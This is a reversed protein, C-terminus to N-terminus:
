NKTPLVPLSRKLKPKWSEGAISTRIMEAIGDDGMFDFTTSRYKSNLLVGLRILDKYDAFTAGNLRAFPFLKCNQMELPMQDLYERHQEYSTTGPTPQFQVLNVSGVIHALQTLRETVNELNEGPAGVVVMATVEGSRPQFGGHKHLLDTARQYVSLDHDPSQSVSADDRLFVQRYGAERMKVVLAKTLLSPSLNGLALLKIDLKQRRILDLVREFHAGSQGPSIDDFFAFEKAGIEAKHRIESIIREADRSRNLFLGAFRPTSEYLSLDTAYNQARKGAPSKLHVNEFNERAHAPCLSPYVGGLFVPTKPFWQHILRVLEHAAQWWFTMLCTVYVADPQWKEDKLNQITAALQDWSWGFHWRPLGDDEITITGIKKKPTRKAESQLCDILRVDKGQRRLFAGIQLLGCPQHWRAWEFRIDYIPPNILLVRKHSM